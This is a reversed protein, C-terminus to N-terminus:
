FDITLLCWSLISFANVVTVGAPCPCEGAERGQSVTGHARGPPTWAPAPGPTEPLSSDWFLYDSPGM